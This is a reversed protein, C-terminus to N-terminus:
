MIDILDFVAFIFTLSKIILQKDEIDGDTGATNVPETLCLAAPGGGGGPYTFFFTNFSSLKLILSSFRNRVKLQLKESVTLRCCALEPDIEM